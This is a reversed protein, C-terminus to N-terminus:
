NARRNGTEPQPGQQDTILIRVNTLKEGPALSTWKGTIDAAFAPVAMALGLGLAALAGTLQRRTIM